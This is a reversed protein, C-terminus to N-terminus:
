DGAGVVALGRHEGFRALLSSPSDLESRDQDHLELVEPRGALGCYGREPASGTWRWMMCDSAICRTATARQGDSFRNAPLPVDGATHIVRTFPCWKRKAQKETLAM